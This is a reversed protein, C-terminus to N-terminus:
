REKIGNAKSWFKGCFVATSWEDLIKAIEKDSYGADMALKIAAKILNDM